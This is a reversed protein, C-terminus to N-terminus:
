ACQIPNDEIAAVTVNAFGMAQYDAVLAAPVYLRMDGVGDFATADINVPTKSRLIMFSEEGDKYQFCGTFANAGISSLSVPLDIQRLEACGNFANANITQVKPLHVIKLGSCGDFGGVVIANALKLYALYLAEKFPSSDIESYNVETVNPLELGTLGWGYALDTNITNEEGYYHGMARLNCDSIPHFVSNASMGLTNYLASWNTASNYSDVLDDPVFITLNSCSNFASVNDLSVVTPSKLVLYRLSNCGYFANNKISTCTEPLVMAHLKRSDRFNNMSIVKIQPLYVNEINQSYGCLGNTNAHGKAKPFKLSILRNCYGFALNCYDTSYEFSPFDVERLYYCHSFVNSQMPNFNILAPLDVRRLSSNHFAYENLYQLSTSSIKYIPQYYFAYGAIETVENDVYADEYTHTVMKRIIETADIGDGSGGGTTIGAIADVMGSPVTLMETGGTKARIADGIATLSAEEIFIKSM